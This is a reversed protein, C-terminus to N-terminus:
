AGDVLGDLVPGGEGREDLRLMLHEVVRQVCLRQEDGGSGVPVVEVVVFSRRVKVVEDEGAIREVRLGELAVLLVPAAFM